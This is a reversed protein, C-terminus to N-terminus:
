CSQLSACVCVCFPRVFGQWSCKIPRPQQWVCRDMPSALPTGGESSRPTGAYLPLGSLRGSQAAPPDQPTDAEESDWDELQWARHCSQSDVSWQLFEAAQAEVVEQRQMTAQLLSPQLGTLLPLCSMSICAQKLM